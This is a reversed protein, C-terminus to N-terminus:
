NNEIAEIDDKTLSYELKRSIYDYVCLTGYPEQSYNLGEKYYIDVYVALVSDDVVIGDFVYKTYNYLNKQDKVSTSPFYRELRVGEPDNRLNDSTDEPTLDYAVVVSVDFLDEDRSPIEALEKDAAVKKLTSQNYRFVLQLQEAETIFHARTVSFYGKNHKARTINDQKQYFIDLEEGYEDYAQKLNQNPIITKMSRPDGSTFMRLLLIGTVGVIIIGCLVKFVTGTIRLAKEGRM